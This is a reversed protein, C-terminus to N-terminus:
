TRFSQILREFLHDLLSEAWHLEDASDFYSVLEQLITGYKSASRGIAKYNVPLKPYLQDKFFYNCLITDQSRFPWDLKLSLFERVIGASKENRFFDQKRLPRRLRKEVEKFFASLMNTENIVLGYIYWDKAVQRIIEKHIKPLNHYTPCFYVRCAVGGYHSLGRFDVGKNGSGLPHLLCGVRSRKNGVLGIYPCHHFNPFPRIQIERAETEQKFELIADMNRPVNAFVETRRMLMALVSNQSGDAVNYLGCCAGCSIHENVQCLYVGGPAKKDMEFIYFM